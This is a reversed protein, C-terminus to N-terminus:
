AFLGHVFWGGGVEGGAAEFLWLREGTGTEIRWYARTGSRWAPDDLWWEPAIREPGFAAARVLLRRRWRFARPPRADDAPLVPEPPLLLLPRDLGHRPWGGAPPAFAAAMEIAAKEPLHSEAPHFRILSDIGIRGGLRGVLDAVAETGEARAVPRARPEVEVARLRLREFGSGAEVGDLRLALVAMIAEGEDVPRAFGAEAVARGGEARDLLARVRRAGMGAARLREGLAAALRGFGAIVDDRRLLPEPCTLRLGFGPGPRAAAVPEPMRGLAQDLRRVVDLGIRRALQARPLPALDGIRRLGLGALTAVAEPAIRLAAVPLPAITERTAGPPVIIAAPGIREAGPGRRAARSRTAHVEQDIADGVPLPPGAREGHRAVAWAAGLTDALGARVTLGLGGFGDLLAQLLGAEGGFLHACGTVDLVLGEAAGGPAGDAGEPAIWPSFRGAWRALAGLFAAEGHPDAPRTLLDPLMARADALPMGRRLGGAEAAASLSALRLAGGEAAVTAFPRVALDPMRRLCREAGLRPFWLSLIRRAM